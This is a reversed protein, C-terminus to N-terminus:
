CVTASCLTAGSEQPVEMSSLEPRAPLGVKEEIVCSAHIKRPWVIPSRSKQEEAPGSHRALREGRTMLHLSSWHRESIAGPREPGQIAEVAIRVEEYARAFMAAIEDKQAAAFNIQLARRTKLEDWTARPDFAAQDERDRLQRYWGSPM